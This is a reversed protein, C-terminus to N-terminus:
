NTVLPIMIRRTEIWVGVFPTVSLISTMITAKLNWDVCGYLTHRKGRLLGLDSYCNWDVCGYLTHSRSNKTPKRTISNWDVCGYLTHGATESRTLEALTNWDVCGYLTHSKTIIQEVQEAHKLGCVWVPHSKQRYYLHYTNRLKLGCVWVPHSKWHAAWCCKEVTEIWVGM